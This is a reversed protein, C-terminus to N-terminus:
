DGCNMICEIINLVANQRLFYFMNKGERKSDLIGYSKLLNLHHSAEPQLINLRKHIDTVCLRTEEELMTIIAIRAPHAVVRLRGAAKELKVPDISAM